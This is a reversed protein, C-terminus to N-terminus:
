FIGMELGVAMSMGLEECQSLIAPTLDGVAIIPTQVLKFAYGKAIREIERAAGSGDNEASIFVTFPLSEVKGQAPYYTRDFFDKLAGSMYGFNEPTGFIVGDAQLLDELETDFATRIHTNVDIIDPHQTGAYIAKAMAETHGTQSHYVILLQKM